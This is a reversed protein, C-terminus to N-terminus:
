RGFPEPDFPWRPRTIRRFPHLRLDTTLAGPGAIYVFEAAVAEFGARFNNVSKVVLVRRRTPDIGASEFHGAGMAAPRDKSLVIEIGKAEVVALDGVPLERGGDRVRTGPLARIVRVRLDLPDGSTRGMKGGLRLDLVAGEGANIAVATMVPDWLYAVAADRIGREILGRVLFTADGPAGAGPADSIDAVVVPFRTAAAIRDLGESLGLHRPHTRGRLQFVKRGLEEAVTAARAGDGDALVLMRTGADPVDAFPYGHVFSISLIGDKGERSRIEALLERTPSEMTHYLSLMRCDWVAAVPRVRRELTAATLEFVDDAREHIDVHPWEKFCVLVNASRVMRESLNAHPDFEVGIPAAPGVLRRIERLLDGEPDDEGEALMAGHLFLMVVDVPLAAQLGALLEERLAQYAARTVMGGPMAGAALGQVVTWGRELARRRYVDLVSGVLAGLLKGDPGARDFDGLATRFPSFSTSETVLAATFLKVTM